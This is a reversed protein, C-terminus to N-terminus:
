RSMERLKKFTEDEEVSDSERSIQSAPRNSSAPRAQSFVPRAPMPRM